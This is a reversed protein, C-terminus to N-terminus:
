LHLHGTESETHVSQWGQVSHITLRDDHTLSTTHAQEEESISPTPWHGAPRAGLSGLVAGRARYHAGRTQKNPPSKRTQFYCCITIPKHQLIKTLIQRTTKTLM